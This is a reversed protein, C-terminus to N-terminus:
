QLEKVSTIVNEHSHIGELIKKTFNVVSFFGTSSEFHSAKCPKTASKNYVNIKYGFYIIITFSSM